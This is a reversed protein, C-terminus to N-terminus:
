MRTNRCAKLLFFINTVVGQLLIDLPESLTQTVM